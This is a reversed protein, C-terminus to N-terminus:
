AKADRPGAARKRPATKRAAGASGGPGTAPGPKASRAAPQPEAEATVKAAPEESIVAEDIPSEVKIEHNKSGPAESEPVVQEVIVTVSEEVPGADGGRYRDVVTRGREALGDYTDVAKGAAELVRGVQVLALTQAKDRLAQVDPRGVAERLSDGAAKPDFGAPVDGLRATVKAFRDPAEAAVRTALATVQESLDALLAQPGKASASKVKEAALDGAGALAYLPKPDALAKVLEDTVNMTKLGRM